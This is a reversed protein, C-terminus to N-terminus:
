NIFAWLKIQDNAYGQSILCDGIKPHSIKKISIVSNHHKILNKIIMGKNLDLLEITKDECGVFLYDNNWLCIGCLFNNGLKIKKLLINSHFNCIRINGDESSEILQILENKNNILLSYHNQKDNDCYKHYLKNETYDFSKINDYNGTIIYNKHKKNEYFTDIFYTRDGSNNIEKIKNGNFDFVKILESINGLYKRSQSAIIYNKNDDNLFCGSYLKGNEYINKINLICEFDNFIWLKINNDDASISIILDRENNKDLYHRFNTILKNHANRIELNKKNDILNYSIISIKKNSYIIYLIDNYISKFICFTNDLVYDSYSDKTIDKSFKLEKPNLNDGNKNKNENKKIININM